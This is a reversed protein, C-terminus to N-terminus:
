RNQAAIYALVISAVSTVIQLYELFKRRFTQPVIITDGPRVPADPGRDETNDNFHIVRIKDINGMERTGGALGVYDKAKLGVMYYYGGPVNVAGQVYVRNIVSPINIRDGDKLVLDTLTDSNQSIDGFLNVKLIIAKGNEDIRTVKINTPDLERNFGKIRQLFQSIKEGQKIAYIGPEEVFGEVIVTQNRATLSPVFIVDGDRVFINKDLKGEKKYQVFDLTDVSGDQHRIEITHEDAWTGIGARELLYSVRDVSRVIYIGPYLVEGLVHVRLKRLEVLNARVKKLRYKKTGEKYVLEQVQALTKGAVMFTGITEIVLKGEPTVKSPFTFMKDGTINIYFLDGPGITYENPDIIKELAEEEFTSYPIIQETTPTQTQWYQNQPQQNQLLAKKQEETQSTKRPVIQQAGLNSCFIALLFLSGIFKFLNNKGM